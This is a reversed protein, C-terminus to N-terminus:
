GALNIPMYYSGDHGTLRDDVNEGTWISPRQVDADGGVQASPQFFMPAPHRDMSRLVVNGSQDVDLRQLCRGIRNRTFLLELFPSSLLLYGQDVDGIGLPEIQSCLNELPKEDFRPREAEGRQARSRDLRRLANTTDVSASLGQKLV